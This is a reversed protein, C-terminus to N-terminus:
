NQRKLIGKQLFSDAYCSGETDSPKVDALEGQRVGVELHSSGVPVHTQFPSCM